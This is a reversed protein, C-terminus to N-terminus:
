KIIMWWNLVTNIVAFASLTIGVYNLWRLEKIQTFINTDTAIRDVISRQHLLPLAAALKQQYSVVVDTHEVIALLDHDGKVRDVIAQWGKPLKHGISLDILMPISTHTVVVAHTDIKSPDSDGNFGIFFMRQSETHTIATQVEVISSVIGSQRLTAQVVDSMSICHGQGRTVLGAKNIKQLANLVIHYENTKQLESDITITKM